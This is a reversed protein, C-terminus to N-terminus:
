ERRGVTADTYVIVAPQKESAVNVTLSCGSFLLTVLWPAVFIFIIILFDILISVLVEKAETDEVSSTEEGNNM